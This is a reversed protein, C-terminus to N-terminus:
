IVMAAHQGYSMVSLLLVGYVIVNEQCVNQYQELRSTYGNNNLRHMFHFFILVLFFCVEVSISIINGDYEAFHIEKDEEVYV